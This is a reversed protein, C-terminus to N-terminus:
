VVTNSRHTNFSLPHPLPVSQDMADKPQSVCHCRNSVVHSERSRLVVSCTDGVHQEVGLLYGPCGGAISHNGPYAKVWTYFIFVDSYSFLWYSFLSETYILYWSPTPTKPPFLVSTLSHERPLHVRIVIGRVHLSHPQPLLCCM